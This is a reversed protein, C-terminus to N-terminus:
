GLLWADGIVEDEPYMVSLEPSLTFRARQRQGSNFSDDPIAIENAGTIADVTTLISSGTSESSASPSVETLATKRLIGTFFHPLIYINKCMQTLLETSPNPLTEINDEAVYRSSNDICVVTYFPQERGRPLDNVKMERIWSESAECVPDWGTIVATYGYKKHKFIMGVFNQVPKEELSRLRIEKAANAEAELIQRCHEALSEAVRGEGELSPILAESIFTACDLPEARAMLQGVFREAGTLVTFIILALLASPRTLNTSSSAINLSSLINRGNRLLMPVSTSPSVYDIMSNPLIGQRALLVPIDDRLSLIPQTSAGFVDVYFDDIEPNPVAIHVLVRIPFNVPSAVIGLSRAISVFVHVLSLPITRKNLTLYLHPLLNGTNHFDHVDAPGFGEASTMFECIIVCLKKLDYESDGETLPVNLYVLYDRCRTNLTALLSNMESPHKGFFCSTASFAQVFPISTSGLRLCGWLETAHIRGISALMASAWYARTVLLSPGVIAGYDYIKLHEGYQVRGTEIELVDWADFLFRSISKAHEYRRIRHQVMSDLHASVERDIIRRAIYMSRWNGNTDAKRQRESAENAHIYRMQYHSQWLTPVLTAARFLRDAASCQAITRISLEGELDRSSPLQYLIHILIDLPIPPVM